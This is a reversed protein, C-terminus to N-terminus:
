TSEKGDNNIPTCKIKLTDECKHGLEPLYDAGCEPCENFVWRHGDKVHEAEEILQLATNKDLLWISRKKAEFDIINSM